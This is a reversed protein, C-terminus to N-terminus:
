WKEGKKNINKWGYDEGKVIRWERIVADREVIADVRKAGRVLTDLGFDTLPHHGQPLQKHTYLHIGDDNYGDWQCYFTNGETHNGNIFQLCDM